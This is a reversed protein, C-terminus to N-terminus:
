DDVLVTLTSFGMLSNWGSWTFSYVSIVFHMLTRCALLSPARFGPWIICPDGSSSSTWFSHYWPDDWGRRGSFGPIPDPLIPAGGASSRRWLGAVVQWPFRSMMRLSRGTVWFVRCWNRARCFIERRSRREQRGSISIHPMLHRMRQPIWWWPSLPVRWDPYPRNQNTGSCRGCNHSRSYSRAFNRRCLYGHYQIVKALVNAWFRMQDIAMDHSSEASVGVILAVWDCIPYKTSDCVILNIVLSCVM